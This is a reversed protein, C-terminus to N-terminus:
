AQLAAFLERDTEPADVLSYRGSPKSVHWPRATSAHIAESPRLRRLTGDARLEDIVVFGSITLRAAMAKTARDGADIPLSGAAYVADMLSKQDRRPNAAMRAGPFRIVNTPQPSRSEM